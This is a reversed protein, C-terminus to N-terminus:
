ANKRTGDDWWYAVASSITETGTSEVAAIQGEIVRISDAPVEFAQNSADPGRLVIDQTATDDNHVELRAAPYNPCGSQATLDIDSSFVTFTRFIPPGYLPGIPPHLKM